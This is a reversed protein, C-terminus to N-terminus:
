PEVPEPVAVPVFRVVLRDGKVTAGVPFKGPASTSNVAGTTADAFYATGANGGFDVIDGSTMIDVIDGAKLAETLVIVGRMGSAGSGKVVNGSANLGVGIVTKLDNTSWDAALAARFGGAKPEYKDYNAM